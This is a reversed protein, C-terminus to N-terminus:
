FLPLCYRMGIANMIEHNGLHSLVRGGVSEAQVRLDEMWGYLAITDDGRDVIDGTQVFIDAGGSWVGSEDTVGAMHLVRRANPLDGHLDGVAVLRTRRTGAEAHLPLHHYKVSPDSAHHPPSIPKSPSLRARLSPSCTYTYVAALAVALVGAAVLPTAPRKKRPPPRRPLVAAQAKAKNSGTRAM